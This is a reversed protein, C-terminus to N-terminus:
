VELEALISRTTARDDPCDGDAISADVSRLLASAESARDGAVLLRGLDNSARLEWLKSGHERAVKLAKVLCAEAEEYNGDDLALAGELRHLDPLAFTEGTTHITAHATTALSRASEELGLGRARWGAETRVLTSYVMIKKDILRRDLEILREISTVNGTGAALLEELMAVYDVWLGLGHESAIPAAISINRKLEADDRTLLSFIGLHARVYCLTNVHDNDLVALEAQHFHAAARRTQGLLTANFAAFLHVTAGVDQGFRSELGTHEAPKFLSVASDLQAQSEGLKGQLCLSAGALRHAVVLPATDTSSSALRVLAVANRTAQATEGRVYMGVWLGYLVPYRLPTDGIREALRLAYEFASKTTDEQYGVRVMLAIGLQVQLGLARELVVREGTEVAPGLLAIAHKLHSIGEDYAPRAVASKSAMEWLDIARDTLDASEAHSALLEPAVGPNGELTALILSHVHRRREKLLSDYAADRVLAHKFLYTAEPPLGRRYLLESTILGDLARELDEPPLPSIDALLQHEFERGICAATQAVEKISQLRDLRAMLSDHLTSPITLTDLPADLVFHEGEAKLVDSELVTKTLEEVFLPVGDTRNAIICVVEPPLSRGGSLKRVISHIQEQGLRNLAFRAVAPHGGFGHEFTPRATALVLVKHAEISNLVLDLLELTTPDIWHLDEFVALLPQSESLQMLMQVLAQMTHARLQTPSLELPPYDDGTEIGLLTAVLVTNSADIGPLATLKELRQAPSDTPHIGAAYRLHQIIPYFASDTHYPSCQYTVRVHASHAVEDVIARAIRSKGIGAEGSVVIMQGNGDRAKRWCEIMLQLEHERGVIPTLMGTQRADFRSERATEGRVRYVDVPQSIGKLQQDAIVALDFLNGVLSQTEQAIILENPQALGQLRAALNPTEGVVAAEQAAGTGILDGVIVVGTAIGVRTALAINTPVALSQVQAIIELGTRVAREADDENARPWGFYCLVGDGMYRAVFGDNRSVVGAVTNQYSAIIGRVDEADHETAMETSGVLDVFMVTLQRREADAPPPSPSVSASAESDATSTKAGPSSPNDNLKKIAELVRRRPGVPLGIEKLDDSTLHPLDVFAVEADAFDNIYKELGLETLWQETRSM